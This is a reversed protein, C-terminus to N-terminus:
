GVGDHKGDAGFLNSFRLELLNELLDVSLHRGLSAGGGLVRLGLTLQGFLERLQLHQRLFAAALLDILRRLGFRLERHTRILHQRPQEELLDRFADLGGRRVQLSIVVRM